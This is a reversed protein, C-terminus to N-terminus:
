VMWRSNHGGNNEHKIDKALVPTSYRV